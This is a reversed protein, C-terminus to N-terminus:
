PTIENFWRLWKEHSWNHKYHTRHRDWNRYYGGAKARADEDAKMTEARSLSADLEDVLGLHRTLLAAQRAHLSTLRYRGREARQDDILWDRISLDTCLGGTEPVLLAFLDSLWAGATEAGLGYRLPPQPDATLHPFRASRDFPPPQETANPTFLIPVQWATQTHNAIFDPPPYRAPDLQNVVVMLYPSLSGALLEVPLAEPEAALYTRFTVMGWHGEPGHLSLSAASGVKWGGTAFPRASERVIKGFQRRLTEFAQKRGALDAGFRELEEESIGM